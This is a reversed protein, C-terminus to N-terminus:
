GQSQLEAQLEGHLVDSSVECLIEWAQWSRLGEVPEVRVRGENEVGVRGSQDVRPSCCMDRAEALSPYAAPSASVNPPASVAYPEHLAATYEEASSMYRNDVIPPTPEYTVGGVVDTSIVNSVADMAVAGHEDLAEAIFDSDVIETEVQEYEGTNDEDELQLEVSSDVEGVQLGPDPLSHSRARTNTDHPEAVGEPWSTLRKANRRPKRSTATSPMKFSSSKSTSSPIDGCEVGSGTSEGVGAGSSASRTVRRFETDNTTDAKQARLKREEEARWKDMLVGHKTRKKPAKADSHFNAAGNSTVASGARHKTRMDSSVLDDNRSYATNNSDFSIYTGAEREAQQVIDQVSAPILANPVVEKDSDVPETKIEPMEFDPPDESTEDVMIVDNDNDDGEHLMQLFTKNSNLENYIFGGSYLNGSQESTGSSTVVPTAATTTTPPSFPVAPIVEEDEIDEENIIQPQKSLAPAGPAQQQLSGYSVTHGSGATVSTVTASPRSYHNVEAPYMKQGAKYLPRLIGKGRRFIVGNHLVIDTGKIKVRGPLVQATMEENEGVSSQRGFRTPQEDSRVSVLGREGNVVRGFSTGNHSSLTFIRLAPSQSLTANARCKHEVLANRLTLQGHILSNVEKRLQQNKFVLQGNRQVLFVYV